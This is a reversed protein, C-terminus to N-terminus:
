IKLAVNPGYTSLTNVDEAFSYVTKSNFLRMKEAYKNQLTFGTMIINLELFSTWTKSKKSIIKSYLLILYM